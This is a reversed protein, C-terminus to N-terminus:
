ANEKGKLENKVISKIHEAINTTSVGEVMPALVVKGGNAEVIDRGSVYHAWDEGKVLIDPLIKKILAYPEDDDFIIVYDVAELGSLVQARQQQNNFPREDGKNRRVSSDSNLGVVLADGQSRAFSLYDIHGPHIIDFCGNTFVLSVSKGKLERRLRVFEDATFIKEKYNRIAM